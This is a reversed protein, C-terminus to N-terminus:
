RVHAASDKMEQDFNERLRILPRFQQDRRLSVFSEHPGSVAGSVRVDEGDIETVAQYRVRPVPDDQDTDAPAADAPSSPEAQQAFSPSALSAFALAFLAAHIKM